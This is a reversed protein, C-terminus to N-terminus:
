VKRRRRRLESFLLQYPRREDTTTRSATQRTTPGTALPAAVSVASPSTVPGAVTELIRGQAPPLSAASRISSHPGSKARSPEDACDDEPLVVDFQQHVANLIEVPIPIASPTVPEVISEVAKRRANARVNLMTRTLRNLASDLAAYRDIVVEEDMVATTAAPQRLEVEPLATANLTQNAVRPPLALHKPEANNERNNNPAPINKFTANAELEESNGAELAEAFDLDAAALQAPQVIGFPESENDVDHVPSERLEVVEDPRPFLDADLWPNALEPLSDLDWTSSPTQLELVGDTESPESQLPYTDFVAGEFLETNSKSSANSNRAMPGDLEISANARAVAQARAAELPNTTARGTTPEAWSLPLQKLHDLAERVIRISIPKESRNTGIALSRDALQHLCRPVGDSAECIAAVADRSFVDSINAGAWALRRVLYGSSEERTFCPLMVQSAIRQNFADCQPRSLTEELALQGSVILRVLPEGGEGFALLARLEELMRTALLHAEDVILVLGRHTPRIAQLTTSLALRLEQDGMRVFSHGLEFLIAQLLSRRTLFNGSPLFALRFNASLERALRQCVLTKGLGAPATLVGIGRGEVAAQLLSDFAQCIGELPVFCDVDPLAAFPRKRLGFPSESM